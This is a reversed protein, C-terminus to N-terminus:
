KEAVLSAQISSWTSPARRGGLAALQREARDVPEQEPAQGAARDVGGVRGVCRAGHEEVDVALVPVLVQERSKRM